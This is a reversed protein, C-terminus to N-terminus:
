NRPLLGLLENIANIADRVGSAHSYNYIETLRRNVQVIRQREVSSLLHKNTLLVQISGRISAASVEQPRVNVVSELVKLAAELKGGVVEAEEEIEDSGLLSGVQRQGAGVLPQDLEALSGLRTAEDVGATGAADLLPGQVLREVNTRLEQVVDGNKREVVAWGHNDMLERLVTMPMVFFEPLPNHARVSEISPFNYRNLVTSEVDFGVPCFAVFGLPESGVLLVERLEPAPIRQRQGSRSDLLCLVRVKDGERVEPRASVTEVSPQGFSGLGKSM